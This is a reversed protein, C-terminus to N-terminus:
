SKILAPLNTVAQQPLLIYFTSGKGPTSEVLVKGQHVAVIHKVIALGLGTGGQKRSRAKDVRYFREFIRPLHEAPIGCGDDRVAIEIQEQRPTARIEVHAGDHSYKIANDLLNIIAQEMLPQNIYVRLSEDCEVRIDVQRDAARGQCEQVAGAIVDSLRVVDRAIDQSGESQEIRSLSLLDDIITHLREAQKGIIKLFRVADEREDLAGDLLTEVFGKISTIPTKLEHSVNAVFDRRMNELRRYETVDNLVIVAGISHGQADRLATGHLQLVCEKEGRMVIDGFVPETSDIAEGALKRFEISRIVEVLSHGAAAAHPFGLLDAAAQNLSIIRQQQDVALVGEVMSALVARQENSQRAMSRIREELQAAMHNLTEALRAMELTEPVVVKNTFEGRAFREAGVRMEELPRAIRQSLLLGVLAAIALIAVAGLAIQSQVARIESDISERPVAARIVGVIEGKRIMPIAVYQLDANITDSFRESHAVRGQMAVLVEDILPQSEVTGGYPRDSEFIVEGDKRILTIRTLTADSAQKCVRRITLNPELTEIDSLRRDIFEARSQLTRRGSEAFFYAITRSASWGAALVAVITILLYSAYLQWLLRKKGM